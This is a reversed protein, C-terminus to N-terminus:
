FTAPEFGTVGIKQRSAAFYLAPSLLFNPEDKLVALLYAVRDSYGFVWSQEGSITREQVEPPLATKTITTPFGLAISGHTGFQTARSITGPSTQCGTATFVPPYKQTPGRSAWCMTRQSDAISAMLQKWSWVASGVGSSGARHMQIEGRRLASPRGTAGDAASARSGSRSRSRCRRVWHPPWPGALNAACGIAPLTHASRSSSREANGVPITPVSRDKKQRM